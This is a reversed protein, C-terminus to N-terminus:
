SQVIRSNYTKAPSTGILSKYVKNFHPQDYFGTDILSNFLSEKKKLHTQISLKLKCWVFYRKISVGTNAKFLHSFRSESLPIRKNLEKKLEFYGVQNNEIFNLAEQVRPDYQSQFPKTGIHHLIHTIIETNTNEKLLCHGKEPKIGQEHLFNKIRKDQHEIILINITSDTFSLKHSVNSEIVALKLGWHDVNNISLKFDGKQAVIIEIAPHSHYDADLTNLQTLYIGKEIDFITIKM